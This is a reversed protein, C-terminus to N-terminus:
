ASVPSAGHHITQGGKSGQKTLAGEEVLRGIAKRITGEKAGADLQQVAGVIAGQSTTNAVGIIEKYARMVLITTAEGDSASRRTRTAKPELFAAAEGLSHAEAKIQANIDRLDSECALRKAHLADLKTKGGDVRARLQSLLDQITPETSM